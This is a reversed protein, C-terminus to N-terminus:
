FFEGEPELEYMSYPEERLIIEQLIIGYAYSYM